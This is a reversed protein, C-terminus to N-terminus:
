DLPEESSNIENIATKAGSTIQKGIKQESDVPGIVGIYLVQKEDDMVLKFVIVNVIVVLLLSLILIKKGKM